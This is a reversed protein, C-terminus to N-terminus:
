FVREEEVVGLVERMFPAFQATRVYQEFRDSGGHDKPALAESSFAKLPLAVHEYTSSTFTFGVNM